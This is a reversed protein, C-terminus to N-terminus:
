CFHNKVFPIHKMIFIILFSVGFVIFPAFLYIYRGSIGLVSVGKFYVARVGIHVAWIGMSCLSVSSIIKVARSNKIQLRACLLFIFAVALICIPSAYYYECRYDTVFYYKTMLYSYAVLVIYSFIALFLNLNLSIKTVVRGKIKYVIGGILFYLIWTYLRFTQIVYSDIQVKCILSVIRIAFNIVALLTVMILAVKKHNLILQLLPLLIYLIILSATFWFVTSYGGGNTNVM